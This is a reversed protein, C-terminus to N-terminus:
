VSRGQPRRIPKRRPPSVSARCAVRGRVTRGTSSARSPASACSSPRTQPGLVAGPFQNTENTLPPGFAGNGDKEKQAYSWGKTHCRGCSYSGGAFGDNYGLNFLAEGETKWANPCSSTDVTTVDFDKVKSLPLKAKAAEQKNQVCTPDKEKMAKALEKKVAAQSQKPTIQISQLYDVLNQIQQANLPGNGLLGWAPMPSFPRGYTLIYTVEARSYRMLVTNLAPAKWTVSEVFDGQSNTITFPAAGGVGKDGHCFACNFGGQATPAFMAAGRAVFKAELDKTEGAQRGPENLWYLPLGLAVVFLGLLGYTLTRDLKRGELVEDSYYPKRNPALEIESGVERKSNRINVYSTCWRSSSRSLSSSM